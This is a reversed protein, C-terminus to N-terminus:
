RPIRILITFIHAGEDFETRRIGNSRRVIDNIIELGAGHLRPDKRTKMSLRENRDVSNSVRIELEEKTGRIDLEMMRTQGKGTKLNAEYANSLLNMLLRALDSEGIASDRNQMWEGQLSCTFDIGEADARAQWERILARTMPRCKLDRLLPDEHLEEERHGIKLEQEIIRIVSAADHRYRRVADTRERLATSLMGATEAETRLLREREEVRDIMRFALGLVAIIVIVAAGTIIIVEPSM